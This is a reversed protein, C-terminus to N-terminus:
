LRPLLARPSSAPVVRADLADVRLIVLHGDSCVVPSGHAVVWSAQLAHREIAFGFMGKGFPIAHLHGCWISLAADGISFEARDLADVRISACRCRRCPSVRARMPDRRRADIPAPSFASVPMAVFRSDRSSVSQIPPGRSPRRNSM